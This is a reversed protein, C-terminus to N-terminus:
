NAFDTDYGAYDSMDDGSFDNTEDPEATGSYNSGSNIYGVKNKTNCYLFVGVSLCLIITFVISLCVANYTCKHNQINDKSLDNINNRIVIIDRELDKNKYQFNNNLFTRYNKYEKDYIPKLRNTSSLVRYAEKINCFFSKDYMQPNSNYKAVVKNFAMDIDPESSNPMIDLILYYDKFIGNNGNQIQLAEDSCIWVRVKKVFIVFCFVIVFTIVYYLIFIGLPLFGLIFLPYLVFVVLGKKESLSLSYTRLLKKTWSPLLFDFEYNQRLKINLYSLLVCDLLITALMSYLFIKSTNDFKFQYNIVKYSEIFFAIINVIIMFNAYLRMKESHVNKNRRKEFFIVYLTIYIICFIVFALVMLYSFIINENVSKVINGKYNTTFSNLITETISLLGTKGNVELIYAKQNTVYISYITRTHNKDECIISMKKGDDFNLIAYEKIRKKFDNYIHARAEADSKYKNIDNKLDYVYFCYDFRKGKGSFTSLLHQLQISDKDLAVMSDVKKRQQLYPSEKLVSIMEDPYNIYVDEIYAKNKVDKPLHSMSSVFFCGALFACLLVLILISVKFFEKRSSNKNENDLIENQM